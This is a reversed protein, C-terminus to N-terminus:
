RSSQVIFLQAGFARLAVDALVRLERETENRPPRPVHPTGTPLPPASSIQFFVETAKQQLKRDSADIDSVSRLRVRRKKIVQEAQQRYTRLSEAFPTPDKALREQLREALNTGFTCALKKPESFLWARRRDFAVHHPLSDLPGIDQPKVYISRLHVAAAQYARDLEQVRHFVPAAYYVENYGNDLDLLLQHQDSRGSETLHFRFFPPTVPLKYQSIEKCSRRTMCDSRKFQLYLPYGPKDLKVDYGGGKKGEEILSPFVPAARVPGIHGLLEHTLAFGYSFESISPKM